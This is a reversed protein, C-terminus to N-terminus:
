DDHVGGDGVLGQEVLVRGGGTAGEAVVLDPREHHRVLGLDELAVGALTDDHELKRRAVRRQRPVLRRLVLGHDALSQVARLAEEGEDVAEGSAIFTPTRWNKLQGSRRMGSSCTYSRASSRMVMM